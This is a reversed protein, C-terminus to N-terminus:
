LFAKRLKPRDVARSVDEMTIGTNLVTSDICDATKHKDPALKDFDSRLKSVERLFDDDIVVDSDERIGSFCKRYDMFWTDLVEQRDTSTSGDEKIVELVANNPKHDSLSKILRWLNTQDKTEALKDMKQAEYRRKFFRFQKDFYNQKEKFQLRLRNKTM